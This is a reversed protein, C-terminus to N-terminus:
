SLLIYGIMVGALEGLGSAVEDLQTKTGIQPKIRTWNWIIIPIALFIPILITTPVGLWNWLFITLWVMGIGGLTETVFDFIFWVIKSDAKKILPLLPLSIAFIFISALAVQLGLITIIYAIATKM